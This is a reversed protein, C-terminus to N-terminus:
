PAVNICTGDRVLLLSKALSRTTELDHSVMLIAMERNLARLMDPLSEEFAADVHTAPEDLALLRPSSIIARCLLVRQLQGGSLEGVPRDRLDAVGCSALHHLARQRDDRTYRRFLKSMMGSLVVEEVTIPFRRDFPNNQPLYGFLPRDAPRYIVEGERPRILGLIVKLLTTKGGGNPGTVGIFDGEGIALNVGSLVVRQDYGASVNKLELIEGM